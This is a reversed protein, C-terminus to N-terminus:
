KVPVAYGEARLANKAIMDLVQEAAEENAMDQDWASDDSVRVNVGHIKYIYYKNYSNDRQTEVFELGFAQAIDWKSINVSAM